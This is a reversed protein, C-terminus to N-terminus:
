KFLGLSDGEVTPTPPELIEEPLKLPELLSPRFEFGYKEKLESLLNRVEIGETDERWVAKTVGLATMIPSESLYARRQKFLEQARKILSNRVGGVHRAEEKAVTAQRAEFPKLGKEFEGTPMFAPAAQRVGPVPGALTDLLVNEGGRLGILERRLRSAQPSDKGYNPDAEILKLISEKNKIDLEVGEKEQEAARQRQQGYGGILGQLLGSIAAQGGLGIQPM